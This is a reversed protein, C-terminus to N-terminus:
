SRLISFREAAVNLYEKRIKELTTKKYPMHHGLVTYYLLNLMSHISDIRVFMTDQKFITPLIEMLRKTENFISGPIKRCIEVRYIDILMGVARDHTYECILRKLILQKCATNFRELFSKFM